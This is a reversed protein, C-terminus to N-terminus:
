LQQLYQIVIEKRRRAIELKTNNTLTLTNNTQDYSKVYLLNILHSKHIRIFNYDSLMEEFERLSKTSVIKTGNLNYIITYNSDAECNIIENVKLVNQGQHSNIIIKKEKSVLNQLLVDTNELLPAQTLEIKSISSILLDPDVPKLLYDTASFRFAKIAFEDFATVFIIKSSIKGVQNLIDFGTGDQLQIDLFIIDPSHKKIESIADPVNSAQAVININLCYQNLLSVLTIRSKSEDDIIIASLM